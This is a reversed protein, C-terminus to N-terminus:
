SPRQIVITGAIYDHLGRKQYTFGIILYGIGFTLDTIIKGIWRFVANKLNLRQGNLDVVKIGLLMKGPTAEYKSSWFFSEYPLSVVITTTIFFIIEELYDFGRFLKNFFLSLLVILGSGLIILIFGDLVTACLRKWFGQYIVPTSSDSSDVIM